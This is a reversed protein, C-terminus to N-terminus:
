AAIAHWKECWYYSHLHPSHLIRFCNAATSVPSNGIIESVIVGLHLLRWGWAKDVGLSEAPRYGPRSQPGASRTSQILGEDQLCHRSNVGKLRPRHNNKHSKTMQGVLCPHSCEPIIFRHGRHPCALSALLLLRITCVNAKTIFRALKWFSVVYRCDALKSHISSAM